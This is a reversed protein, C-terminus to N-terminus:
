ISEQYFIPLSLKEVEDRGTAWTEWCGRPRTEASPMTRDPRAEQQRVLSVDQLFPRHSLSHKKVAHPPKMEAWNCILVYAGEYLTYSMFETSKRQMHINTSM